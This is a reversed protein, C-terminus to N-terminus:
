SYHVPLFRPMVNGPLVVLALGTLVATTTNPNALAVEVGDAFCTPTLKNANSSAYNSLLMFSQVHLTHPSCLCIKPEAHRVKSPLLYITMLWKTSLSVWPM